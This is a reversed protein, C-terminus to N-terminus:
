HKKWKNDIKNIQYELEIIREQITKIEDMLRMVKFIRWKSTHILEDVKEKHLQVCHKLEKQYEDRHCLDVSQAFINGITDLIFESLSLDKKEVAMEM